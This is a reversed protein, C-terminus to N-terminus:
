NQPETTSDDPKDASKSDDNKQKVKKDIESPFIIPTEGGYGEQSIEFQPKQNEDNM